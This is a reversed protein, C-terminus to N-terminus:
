QIKEREFDISSWMLQFGATPEKPTDWTLEVRNLGKELLIGSWTTEGKEPHTVATLVQDNVSLDASGAGFGHFDVPQSRDVYLWGEFIAKLERPEITPSDHLGDLELAAFRNVRVDREFGGDIRQQSLRLILGSELEERRPRAFRDLQITAAHPGPEGAKEGLHHLTLYVTQDM